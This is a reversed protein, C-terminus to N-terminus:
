YYKMSGREDDLSTKADHFFILSAWDQRWLHDGSDSNIQRVLGSGRLYKDSRRRLHLTTPENEGIEM